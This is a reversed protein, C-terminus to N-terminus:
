QYLYDWKEVFNDYETKNRQILNVLRSANNEFEQQAVEARRESMELRKKSINVKTNHIKVIKDRIMQYLPVECNLDGYGTNFFSFYGQFKQDSDFALVGELDLIVYIEDPFKSLVAEFLSLYGKNTTTTENKKSRDFEYDVDFLYNLEIEGMHTTKKTPFGDWCITKGNEDFNTPYEYKKECINVVGNDVNIKGTIYGKFTYEKM